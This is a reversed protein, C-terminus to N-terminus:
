ILFSTDAVVPGPKPRESEMRKPKPLERPKAEVGDRQDAIANAIEGVELVQSQIRTIAALPTHLPDDQPM